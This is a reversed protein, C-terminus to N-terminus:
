QSMQRINPADADSVDGVRTVAVRWRAEGYDRDMFLVEAEHHLKTFRKLQTEPVLCVFRTMSMVQEPVEVAKPRNHLYFWLGPDNDGLAVIPTHNGAAEDVQKALQRHSHINDLGPMIFVYAVGEIAAIACASTLWAPALTRSRRWWWLMFCLLLFGGGTGFAIFRTLNWLKSSVLALVICSIAMLAFQISVVVPVIMSYRKGRVLDDIQAAFYGAIVALAPVAPLLYYEKRSNLLSFILLNGIFWLWTFQIVRPQQRLSRAVGIVAAIALVSWPFLYYPWHILYYMPSQKAAGPRGVKRDMELIWVVWAKHDFALVALPWSIAILVAVIIAIWAARSRPLRAEGRLVLIGIIPPAIIALAVPGKTLSCLGVCSGATAWWMMRREPNALGQWWSVLACGVFLSLFLDTSPERVEIIFFPSTSLFAGALLGARIGGAQRALSFTLAVIAVGAFAGPVRLTLENLVGVSRAFGAIIWYPLPPKELRPQGAMHPLLWHSDYFIDAVCAALRKQRIGWLGTSALGTFLTLLCLATVITRAVNPADLVGARPADVCDNPLTNMEPGFLVCHTRARSWLKGWHGRIRTTARGALDSFSSLTFRDM